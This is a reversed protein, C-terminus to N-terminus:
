SRGTINALTERLTDDMTGLPAAASGSKASTRVNAATAKKAEAVRKAEAEKAKEAEEARQRGLEKGRTVPNQWVAKEYAEALTSCVKSQLLTVMDNAVENFYINKPDSAFANVNKTMEAQTAAQQARETETLRSQVADLRSQLNKVAPDIYPTEYDSPLQGLDVRYDQALKQFLTLKEQPNGLALTHHAQMLGAVQQAPDVGYQQLTPLFPALTQKFTRGFTADEKYGEIGKFIDEERKAIENRVVEPIQEWAAAAEPRWTKPASGQSTSQLNTQAEQPKEEVPQEPIVTGEVSNNIASDLSDESGEEQGFGLSDSLSDLAGAMDFDNELESSM